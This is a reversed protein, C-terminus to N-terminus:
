RITQTLLMKRDGQMVRHIVEVELKFCKHLDGLHTQKGNMYTFKVGECCYLQRLIRETEFEIGTIHSVVISRWIIVSSYCSFTLLVNDRM